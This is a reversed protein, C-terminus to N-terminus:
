KKGNKISSKRIVFNLMPNATFCTLFEWISVVRGFTKGGWIKTM